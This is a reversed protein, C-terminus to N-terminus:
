RSEASRAPGTIVYFPATLAIFLTLFIGSFSRGVV